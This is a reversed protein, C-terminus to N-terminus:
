DERRFISRGFPGEDKEVVPAARIEDVESKLAELHPLPIPSAVYTLDRDASVWAVIPLAQTHGPVMSLFPGREIDGLYGLHEEAYKRGYFLLRDVEARWEKRLRDFMLSYSSDEPFMVDSPVKELNKWGFWLDIPPAAYVYLGATEHTHSEGTM